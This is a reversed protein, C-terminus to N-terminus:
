PDPLVERPGHDPDELDEVGVADISWRAETMFLQKLEEYIMNRTRDFIRLRRLAVDSFALRPFGSCLFTTWLTWKCEGFPSFAVM